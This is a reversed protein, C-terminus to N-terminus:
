DSGRLEDYAKLAQLFDQQAAHIEEHSAGREITEIYNSHKQRYLDYAEQIGEADVVSAAQTQEPMQTTQQIPESEVVQTQASSGIEIGDVVLRSEQSEKQEQEKQEERARRAERRDSRWINIAAIPTTVLFSGAAGLTAGALSSGFLTYALAIGGLGVAGLTMAMATGGIAAGLVAGGIAVMGGIRAARAFVGRQDENNSAFAETPLILTVFMSFILFCSVLRKNYLM